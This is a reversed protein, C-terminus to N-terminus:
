DAPAAGNRPAGCQELAKSYLNMQHEVAAKPEHTARVHAFAREGAARWRQEELLWQLGEAFDGDAAHYGFGSAYGDPDTQSLIACRCAAAEIFTLPLGERAATNLLIWARSLWRFLGDDGAQDIFGTFRVNHLSKAGAVIRREYEADASKGIVVFGVDPFRRAVDLLLEPRKVKALRGVFAVLPTPSKAREPPPALPMPAFVPEEALRYIRKAKARLFRAPVQVLTANRAARGAFAASFYAYSPLLRLSGPGTQRFLIKWDDADRPDVCDVVHARDPLSRQVIGAGLSAQVHHYIDAGIARARRRLDIPNRKEYTSIPVGDLAAPAPGADAASPVLSTVRVGRSSLTRALARAGVGNGGSPGYGLYETAVICVHPYAPGAASIM